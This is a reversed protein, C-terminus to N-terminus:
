VIRRRTTLYAKDILFFGVFGSPNRLLSCADQLEIFLFRFYVLKSSYLHYEVGLFFILDGKAKM